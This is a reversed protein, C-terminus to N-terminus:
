AFIANEAFTAETLRLALKLAPINTFVNSVHWLQEAQRTLTEVLAPHAHGLACVAIGSTLDVYDRGEEDWVRSGQARVPIVPAPAYVPAMVTDFTDRSPHPTTVPPSRQLQLFSNRFLPPTARGVAVESDSRQPLLTGSGPRSTALEFNSVQEFFGFASCEFRLLLSVRRRQEEHRRQLAM